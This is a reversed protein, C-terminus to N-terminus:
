PYLVIIYIICSQTLSQSLDIGFHCAASQYITLLTQCTLEIIYLECAAKVITCLKGHQAHMCVCVGIIDNYCLMFM